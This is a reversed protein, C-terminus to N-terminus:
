FFIHNSDCKQLPKQLFHLSKTTIFWVTVVYCLISKFGIIRDLLVANLSWIFFIACEWHLYMEAKSCRLVLIYSLPHLVSQCVELRATRSTTMFCGPWAPERAPRSRVVIEGVVSVSVGREGGFLTMVPPFGSPEGPYSVWESGIRYPHPLCLPHSSQCNPASREARMRQIINSRVFVCKVCMNSLFPLVRCCSLQEMWEGGTECFCRLYLM